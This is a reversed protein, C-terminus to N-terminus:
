HFGCTRTPDSETVDETFSCVQVMFFDTELILKQSPVYDLMREPNQLIVRKRRLRTAHILCWCSNVPINELLWEVPTGGFQEQIEEVERLQEAIHIHVPGSDKAEIIETLLKPSVARLSHPAIGLLYDEPVNCLTDQTQELIRLFSEIDNSFRLQGHLLKKGNLGGQMYFVPLHTLGIGAEQAAIIIRLSTEAINKYHLGDKQHHVYHFEGVSAYGCELMEMFVLAAIAEM